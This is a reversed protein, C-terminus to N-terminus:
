RKPIGEIFHLIMPWLQVRVAEDAQATVGFSEEEAGVYNGSEYPWNAGIEHGVGPFIHFADGTHHGRRKILDQLFACNRQVGDDQGCAAFIPVPISAVPIRAKPVSSNLLFPSWPLQKGGFTWASAPLGQGDSNTAEGVSDDGVMSIVGAVLPDHLGTLLAAEGGRSTGDVVVRGQAVGDQANLWAVAKEFYEVPIKELNKPLGPSGFYSLALARIGHSAFMTADGYTSLGGESGGWLVVAPGPAAHAPAAYAGVFGADSLDLPQVTVGAAKLTRQVTAAGTRRGASTAVFTLSSSGNVPASLMDDLPATVPDTMSWLLGSGDVGTYSGKTSRARDLDVRGHGDARFQASSRWVVGDLGIQTATVTVLAGSAAGSVTVHVPADALSLGPTAAVSLTGRILGCASLGVVVM